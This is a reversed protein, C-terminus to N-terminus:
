KGLNITLKVNKLKLIRFCNEIFVSYIQYQQKDTTGDEGEEEEKQNRGM